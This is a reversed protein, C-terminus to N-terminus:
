SDSLLIRRGRRGWRRITLYGDLKGHLLRRLTGPESLYYADVRPLCNLPDNNARRLETTCAASYESAALTCVQGNVAGFPYAFSSVKKGLRDEIQKRSEVLERRASNADCHTLDPHTQTHSGIEIGSQALEVVEDWSLMKQVGLGAPPKAWDNLQGVRGSVIFVTAGFGHKALVPLAQEHVNAFGDDFTLAVSRDPWVGQTQRHNVAESLSIGRFGEDAILSMQEAFTKSACSVVSGTEDISHYMLISVSNM